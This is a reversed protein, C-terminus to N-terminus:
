HLEFPLRRRSPPGGGVPTAVVEVAYAGRALVAGDPGRGTLGFTYRGPLVDRLRAITGLRRRGQWLVVDLTGVRHIEPGAAGGSVRGAEVALLAPRVNAASFAHPALSVRGLLSVASAPAPLGWPVRLAPGDADRVVIASAAATARPAGSGVRVTVRRTAHPPLTLEAPAVVVPLAAADSALRLRLRDGGLNRLRFVAIGRRDPTLTAPSALLRTAAARAADVTGAGQVAVDEGPQAVASGVLAARLDDPRLGPRAQATVAAAAAAVAAAASTGSVTTWRAATAAGGPAATALGVGPAALQPAVAGGPGLGSSSFPAVLGARPNAVAAAAVVSVRVVGGAALHARIAAAVRPPVSVVPVPAAPDLALGGPAVGHPGADVLVALARAAAARRVAAALDAGARVLAARDGVVPADSMVLDLARDPLVAGAGPVTGAYSSAGADVSVRVAQLSARADVAAVTLAAPAGGPAALDGTAPSAAGDNGAAGVLLTGLAALGAAAEAEPGDPFAAFPEALPVLAIRVADHEDGDGNPDVARELGALLQDSRAFVASRGHEDKQMGAVRIPLLTAGPASGALGGPGGRGVVLGAIETGHPERLPDGRGGVVDIEPLVAHHLFPLARAVATDLLAITVGSGDLGPPHPPPRRGSGAGFAAGALVATSDAAPYAVRVPYVGAVETDREVRPVDAPDLRASFGDLARTFRLEPALDLGSARLRALLADQAALAAGSWAIEEAGSASGGAAALRRAVSPTRLVVIARQPLSLEPRTGVVSRWAARGASPPALTAGARDGSRMSWLVAGGTAVAAVVLCALARAPRM